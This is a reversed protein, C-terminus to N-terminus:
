NQPDKDIEDLRPKKHIIGKFSFYIREPDLSSKVSFLYYDEEDFVEHFNSKIDLPKRKPIYPIM